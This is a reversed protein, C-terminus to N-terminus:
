SNRGTSWDPLGSSSPNWSAGGDNSKFVGWSSGRPSLVYLTSPNQPDIALAFAGESNLQLGSNAASWSAGGDTSKFVGGFEFAAYGGSEFAAYLNAPHQPDIVLALVCRSSIGLDKFLSASWTIGGDVSKRLTEYRM